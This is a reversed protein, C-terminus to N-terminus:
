PRLHKTTGMANSRNQGATTKSALINRQETEIKTLRTQYNKTRPDQSAENYTKLVEKTFTDYLRINDVLTELSAQDLKHLYREFDIFTKLLALSPEVLFELIDIGHKGTLVQFEALGKISSQASAIMAESNGQHDSIFSRALNILDQPKMQSRNNLLKIISNRFIVLNRDLYGSQSLSSTSSNVISRNPRKRAAQSRALRARATMENNGLITENATVKGTTVMEKYDYM